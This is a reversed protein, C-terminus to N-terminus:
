FSSILLRVTSAAMAIECSSPPPITGSCSITEAEDHNAVFTSRSHFITARIPIVEIVPLTRKNVPIPSRRADQEAPVSLYSRSLEM